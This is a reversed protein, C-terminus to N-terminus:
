YLGGIEDTRGHKWIAPETGFRAVSRNNIMRNVLTLNFWKAPGDQFVSGRNRPRARAQGKKDAVTAM